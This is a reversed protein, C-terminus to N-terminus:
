KPIARTRVRRTEIVTAHGLLDDNKDAVVDVLRQAKQSPWLGPLVLRIIGIPRHGHKFALEGFDKDETLLVRREAIATRMVEEDPASPMIVTVSVADHGADRLAQVIVPSINEDALFRV